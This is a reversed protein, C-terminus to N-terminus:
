AIMGGNSQIRIEEFTQKLEARAAAVADMADAAAAELGDLTAMIESYQKEGM